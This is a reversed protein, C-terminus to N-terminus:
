KSCSELIALPSFEEKLGEKLLPKFLLSKQSLGFVSRHAKKFLRLLEEETFSLYSAILRVIEPPITKRNLRYHKVGTIEVEHMVRTWLSYNLGLTLQYIFRAYIKSETKQQQENCQDREEQTLLFNYASIRPFNFFFKIL